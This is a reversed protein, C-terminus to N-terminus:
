VLNVTTHFYLSISSWCNRLETIPRPRSPFLPLSPLVDTDIHTRRPSVLRASASVCFGKTPGHRRAVGARGPALRCLLGTATYGVTGVRVALGGRPGTTPFSWRTPDFPRRPHWLLPRLLSAPRAATTHCGPQKGPEPPTTPFCKPSWTTRGRAQMAARCNNALVHGCRGRLADVANVKRLCIASITWKSSGLEPRSDVKSRTAKQLICSPQAPCGYPLASTSWHQRPPRPLSPSSSPLPAWVGPTRIPLGILSLGVDDDEERPAFRAVM